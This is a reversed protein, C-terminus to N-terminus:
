EVFCDLSDSVHTLVDEFDYEKAMFDATVEIVKAKIIDGSGDVIRVEVELKRMTIGGRKEM